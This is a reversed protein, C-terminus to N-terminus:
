ETWTFNIHPIKAFQLIYKNISNKTQVTQVITVIGKSKNLLLSQYIELREGRM